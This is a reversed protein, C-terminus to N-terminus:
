GRKPARQSGNKRKEGRCLRLGHTINEEPVWSMTGVGVVNAGVKAAPKVKGIVRSEGGKQENRGGGAKRRHVYVEERATQFCRGFVGVGCYRTM